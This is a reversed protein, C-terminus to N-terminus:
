LVYETTWLSLLERRVRGRRWNLEDAFGVGNDQTSPPTGATAAQLHQAMHALAILGDAANRTSTFQFRV